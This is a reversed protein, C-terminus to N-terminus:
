PLRARLKYFRPSAGNTDNLTMPGGVGSTEAGVDTWQGTLSDCSRLQYSRGASSEFGIRPGAGLSISDIELRELRNSPHTDAWYEQLTSFGDGDPDNTAAAGITRGFYRQEWFDAIGNADTDPAVTVKRGPSFESTNGSPDTATATVVWGTPTSHEFVVSFPAVRSASTTVNTWGLFVQGEGNTMPHTAPNAFCEVRYVRSAQSTLVGSVHTSGAFVNTLLPYNQNENPGTDADTPDNPTINDQGLDISLHLHGHISNGLISNCVGNTVVVGWYTNWAITNGAGASSGGIMNHDASPGDDLGRIWVGRFGNGVPLQGTPDTGILNGVVSNSCTRIEMGNFWNGSIVNGEGANTGGITNGGGQALGVGQRQPWGGPAEGTPGVGIYNGQVRLNGVNGNVTIGDGGNGCIYNREGPGAGGICIVASGGSLLIGSNTNGMNRTGAADLGIFNGWVNINTCEGALYLGNYRNGSIVNRAQTSTGGVTVFSVTGLQVGDANPIANSGDASLGVWNGAVLFNTTDYGSIGMCQIGEGVNGSVLNGEGPRTGGIVCNAAYTAHIGASNPVAWRGTSDTGIRNGQVVINVGELDIAADGATEGNGSIVNGAGPESGGIQVNSVELGLQIGYHRNSVARSGDASLGVYNGQIVNNSAGANATTIGAQGNGSIVNREAESTGGIRNSASGMRIGWNLNPLPNMGSADTGIYNGIVLHGGGSGGFGPGIDIGIAGGGSVVNRDTVSTGGIVSQTTGLFTIGATANSLCYCGAIVHGGGGWATVGAGFRSVGLARVTCGTTFNIWFGVASSPASAGDLWVLPQNSYGPQSSGDIRVPYSIVPLASLVSITFPGSGPIQFAIDDGGAGSNADTIAQRLSGVGSDNTTTVVYTNALCVSGSLLLGGVSRLMQRMAREGKRMGCFISSRAFWNWGNKKQSRQSEIRNDSLRKRM